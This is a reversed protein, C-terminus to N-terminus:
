LTPNCFPEVIQKRELISQRHQRDHL